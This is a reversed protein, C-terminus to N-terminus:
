RPPITPTPWGALWPRSSTDRLTSRRGAARFFFTAEDANTGILLPVDHRVGPTQAPDAPLAAPDVIPM